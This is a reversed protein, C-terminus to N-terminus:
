KGPFKGGFVSRLKWWNESNLGAIPNIMTKRVHFNGSSYQCGRTFMVDCLEQLESNEYTFGRLAKLQAAKTEGERACLADGAFGHPWPTAMPGDSWHNLTATPFYIFILYIDGWDWEM